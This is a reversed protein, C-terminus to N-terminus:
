AVAKGRHQKRAKEISASLSDVLSKPAKKTKVLQLRPARGAAKQEILKRLRERYEDRFEEPRFRDEALMGVLQEAM